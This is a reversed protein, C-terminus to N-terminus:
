DWCPNTIEFMLIYSWIWWVSSQAYSYKAMSPDLYIWPTRTAEPTYSFQAGWYFQYKVKINSLIKLKVSIYNKPIHKLKKTYSLVVNIDFIQTAGAAVIRKHESTKYIRGINDKDYDSFHFFSFPNASIQM